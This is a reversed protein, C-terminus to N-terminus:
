KGSYMDLYLVLPSNGRLSSGHRNVAHLNHTEEELAVNGSVTGKCCGNLEKGATAEVQTRELRLVQGGPNPVYIQTELPSENPCNKLLAMEAKGGACSKESQYVVARQRQRCFLAIALIIITLSVVAATLPVLFYMKHYVPLVTFRHVLQVPQLSAEFYPKTSFKLICETVGASNFASVKLLYWTAPQLPVTYSSQFM